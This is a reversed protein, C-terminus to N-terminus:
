IHSLTPEGGEDYVIMKYKEINSLEKVFLLMNPCIYRIDEKAAKLGKGLLFCWYDLCWLGLNSKGIGEEGEIIWLNDYDEKTLKNFAVDIGKILRKM